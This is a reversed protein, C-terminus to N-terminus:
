RGAGTAFGLMGAVFFAVAGVSLLTGALRVKREAAGDTARKAQAFCALALLLCTVAVALHYLYNM